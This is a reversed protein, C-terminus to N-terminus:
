KALLHWTIAHLAPMMSPPLKRISEAIHDCWQDETFGAHEARPKHHPALAKVENAIQIATMCTTGATPDSESVAKPLVSPPGPPPNLQDAM